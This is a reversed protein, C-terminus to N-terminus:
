SVGSSGRTRAAGGGAMLPIRLYGVDLMKGLGVERGSSIGTERGWNVECAGSLRGVGTLALSDNSTVEEAGVELVIRNVRGYKQSM